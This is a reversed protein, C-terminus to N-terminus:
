IQTVLEETTSLAEIQARTMVVIRITEPFGNV